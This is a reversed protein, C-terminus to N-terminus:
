HAGCACHPGDLTIGDRWVAADSAGEREFWLLPRAVAEPWTQNMTAADYLRGNAMVYRIERSHRLDELPNASLVLLDALKGAEISGLDADMGLYRAGNLTAARIAELPTMGGQGLMWLEWHAGIGQMQGHAGLNVGVGRDALAKAAEALTRHWYETDPALVRRRARADVVGRPTFTLLRPDEWVNTHGYWYDEGWLGGYGVILTPTYAVGSEGWLSLVDDYFPAVPLAHEIGTHGDVVQTLNHYFTSGGEPVVLMGLERAAVLVQQRQDRRPQNYSKVSFAGVARLRRLHSRADDLSNVTARFDGDAGYLITGTSFVRPGVIEGAKVMESLTFVTETTASPDHMTTVGYALNAYYVWNAQPLAGGYFHGAHAHVDVMGPMITHGAVDIVEADEPVDVTAAPGVAVIRNGRVVVTGNEIVEDGDMTIVRAGVLVVAGDPRDFPLTLNVPVGVSDPAPLEEPAGPLFAFAEDLARTYVEPGILWRLARGDDVWHLETGADRSVRTVPIARTDKSLEVESGTVPFPAVFVNFAENFAVWRGDPSPVVDTAYKLTFHTREDGGDLRVSKYRKELGGGTLFYVREGDPSFRPERGSETILTMEGGDADMWYLGPETGHLTGRLGNGEGRRFVIREGDPSFRPTAYHGPRETLRRAEGSRLDMLWISGYEDDSWTTYVLRRGDPSFAPDYEFRADDRTLRRPTGDPYDMTWLHGVAHFVLTRGDPATAADRLMRVRFREPAVEYTARVPETITQEVEAEFPIETVARTAVDLRHLGGDAWFVLARGDPTWDMAPYVGFIAWTEQQDRSLGDYLPTEAGTQLDYLFLVEKDRVRRVFALHRGDPSPTPRAAGGPGGLLTEVEGTERDLRRIAYIGANPDKNYEFTSGGTADEAYYVYRGDPSLAIENAQDQQDNRRETLQLGAGGSVHYMWVEGAGLSRTSTFHKRGLLYQGDPTWAPGNVLRFDEKTVQVPDSGARDMVWLNDGGARDSTFAIRAGDPSFRPQVDFAPGETIRRATGGEIPLFYLDGLLDFVIERGDPSVDLNMWTGETTTFRVTRTPGHEASVDWEAEEEDAQAAAPFAVLTVLLGLLLHRVPGALPIQSMTATPHHPDHWSVWVAGVPAVM